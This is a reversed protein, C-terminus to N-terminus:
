SYINTSTKKKPNKKFDVLRNYIKTFVEQLRNFDSWEIIVKQQKRDDADGGFNNDFLEEFFSKVGIYDKM